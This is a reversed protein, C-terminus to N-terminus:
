IADNQFLELMKKKGGICRREAERLIVRRFGENRM